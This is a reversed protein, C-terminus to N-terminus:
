QVSGGTAAVRAQSGAPPLLGAARQITIAELVRSAHRSLVEFAAPWRAEPAGDGGPADAYLVAVVAGGITIPFAGADRGDAGPLGPGPQESTRVFPRGGQLVDILIGGDNGSIEAPAVDAEGFGAARWQQLREGKVVFVAVRERDRRRIRVLSDLVEGLTRADDIARIGQLLAVDQQEGALRGHLQEMEHRATDLQRQLDDAANRSAAALRHAEEMERRVDDLERRSAATREDLAKRADSVESEALRRVNEIEGQLRGQLDAAEASAQQRIQAILADASSRIEFAEAQAASRVAAIESDFARRAEEIQREAEQRVAAVQQEADHRLAALQADAQQRAAAIADAAGREAEEREAAARRELEEREAAARRELEDRETAARRHLEESFARMRSELSQRLGGVADELIARLLDDYPM